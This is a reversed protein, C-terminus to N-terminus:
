YYPIDRFAWKRRAFGSMKPNTCDAPVEGFIPLARNRLTKPAHPICPHTPAPRRRRHPRTSPRTRRAAMCTKPRRVRWSAAGARRFTALNATRRAGPRTRRAGFQRQALGPVRRSALQMSSRSPVPWPLGHARPQNAWHSLSREVSQEARSLASGPVAMCSRPMWPSAHM